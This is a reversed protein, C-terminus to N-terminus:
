GGRKGIAEQDKAPILNKYTNEINKPTTILSNAIINMIAFLEIVHDKNENIDIEGPHVANNGTVRIIDLSQQIKPDLGKSVLTKIDENINKGSCGIQKLLKQLALRLIAASGRPSSSYIESAEIYLDKIDKNMDENPPDVPAAIPYVMKSDVWLAFDRCSVCTSIAIKDLEPPQKLNYGTKFTDELDQLVPQLAGAADQQERIAGFMQEQLAYTIKSEIFDKKTTWYQHAVINCNPCKFTPANLTPVNPLM